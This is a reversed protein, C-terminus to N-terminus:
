SLNGDERGGSSFQANERFDLDQAGGISQRMPLGVGARWARKASMGKKRPFFSWRRWITLFAGVSRAADRGRKGAHISLHFEARQRIPCRSIPERRPLTLRYRYVSM